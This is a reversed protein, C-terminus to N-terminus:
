GSAACVGDTLRDSGTSMAAAKTGFLVDAAAAFRIASRGSLGSVTFSSGMAADAGNGFSEKGLATEALAGDPVATVVAETACTTGGVSAGVERRKPGTVTSGPVIDYAVIIPVFM